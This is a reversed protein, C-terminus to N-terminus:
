HNCFESFDEVFYSQQNSIDFYDDKVCYLYNRATRKGTVNKENAVCTNLAAEILKEGKNLEFLIIFQIHLM